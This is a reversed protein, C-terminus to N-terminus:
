IRGAYSWTHMPVRLLGNKAYREFLCALDDVFAKYGTHDPHPAYSASLSNGIFEELTLVRDNPFSRTEYTENRFFFMFQEVSSERGGSFGTFGPCHKRCLANNEITLVSEPIRSNWVLVVLGEPKIIRTFEQHTRNRDFWHFAQAVTIFDVAHDPIGTDEATGDLAIFSCNRGCAEMCAIRMNRNPEIAYITKVRQALPETLIGTGAGVDAVCADQSLGVEGFLYKIFSDPYTPRYKVYFGVKDTFKGTNDMSIHGRQRGMSYVEWIIAEM